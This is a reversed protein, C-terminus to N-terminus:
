SPGLKQATEELASKDERLRQVENFLSEGAHVHDAGRDLDVSAQTSSPGPTQRVKSAKLGSSLERRREVGRREEEEERLRRARLREDDERDTRLRAAQTHTHKYPNTRTHIQRNSLHQPSCISTHAHTHAPTNFTHTHTCTHTHTQMHSYRRACGTTVCASRERDNRGRGTREPESRGAVTKGRLRHSPLRPAYKFYVAPLLCGVAPLLCCASSPLCCVASLLM